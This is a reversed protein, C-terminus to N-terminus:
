NIGQGVQSMGPNEMVKDTVRGQGYLRPGQDVSYLGAPRTGSREPSKEDECVRCGGLPSSQERQAWQCAVPHRTVLSVDRLTQNESHM